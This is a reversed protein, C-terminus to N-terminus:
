SQEDESVPAWRAPVFDLVPDELLEPMAVRDLAVLNCRADTVLNLTDIRLEAPIWDHRHWQASWVVPWVERLSEAVVGFLPNEAAVIPHASFRIAGPWGHPADCYIDVRYFTHLDDPGVIGVPVVATVVGTGTRVLYERGRDDLELWAQM